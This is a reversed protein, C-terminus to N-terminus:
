YPQQPLRESALTREWSKGWLTGGDETLGASTCAGPDDMSFSVTLPLVTM